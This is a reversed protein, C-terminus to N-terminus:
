MPASMNTNISDIFYIANDTDNAISTISPTVLHWVYNQRAIKGIGVVGDTFESPDEQSQHTAIESYTSFDSYLTGISISQWLRCLTFGNIFAIEHGSTYPINHLVTNNIDVEVLISDYNSDWATATITDTTRNYILSGGTGIGYFIDGNSNIVETLAPDGTISYIKDMGEFTVYKLDNQDIALTANGPYEATTGSILLRGGINYRVDIEQTGEDYTSVYFYANGADVRRYVVYPIGASDVVINSMAAEATPDAERDVLIRGFTQINAGPALSDYYSIVLDNGTSTDIAIWYFKDEFKSVSGEITYDVLTGFNDITDIRYNALSAPENTAPTIVDTRSLDLTSLIGKSIYGDIRPKNYTDSGINDDLIDVTDITDGPAIQKTLNEHIYLASSHPLTYKFYSSTVTNTVAEVVNSPFSIKRLAYVIAM